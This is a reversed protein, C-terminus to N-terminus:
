TRPGIVYTRPRTPVQPHGVVFERRHGANRPGGEMRKNPLARGRREPRDHLDRNAQPKVRGDQQGAVRLQFAPLLHHVQCNQGGFKPLLAEFVRGLRHVPHEVLVRGRFLSVRGIPKPAHLISCLLDRGVAGRGTSRKPGRNPPVVSAQLPGADGGGHGVTVARGDFPGVELAEAVWARENLLAESRLQPIPGPFLGIIIQGLQSLGSFESRGGSM